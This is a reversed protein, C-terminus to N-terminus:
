GGGPASAGVLLMPDLHRGRWSMRWCLHPGTARGEQGVAGILQGQEVADGAMVDLRSLHLYLSILGQGHDLMILGGEYHLGSEAFCVVAEAPAVVETGVPAALDDGYHPRSPEGNLIRQGGFRASLRAGQVPMIFGRRFGDLDARSAFGAEKRRAEREIRALLEPDTPTVQDQPLGDIRQIDFEGRAISLGHRAEGQRTRAGIEATAPADRDFGVIFLGDVSATSVVAGDLRVEARPATRGMVFGGQVPLGTLALPPTAARALTPVTALAGLLARRNLGQAAREAGAV